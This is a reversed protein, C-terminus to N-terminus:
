IHMKYNFVSSRFNSFNMGFKWKLFCVIFSSWFFLLDPSYWVQVASDSLPFIYIYSFLFSSLLGAAVFSALFQIYIWKQHTLGSTIRASVLPTSRLYKVFLLKSKQNGNIESHLCPISVWRFSIHHNLTKEKLKRNYKDAQQRSKPSAQFLSLCLLSAATTACLLGDMKLECM